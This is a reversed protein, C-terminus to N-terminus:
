ADSARAAARPSGAATDTGATPGGGAGDESVQDIPKFPNSPSSSASTAVARGARGPHGAAQQGAGPEPVAARRARGAPQRARGYAHAPSASSAKLAFSRCRWWRRGAAAGGRAAAPAPQLDEFIVRALASM